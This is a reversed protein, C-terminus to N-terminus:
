QVWFKNYLFSLHLDTNLSKFISLYIAGTDTFYSDTLYVVFDICFDFLLYQLFLFQYLLNHVNNWFYFCDFYYISIIHVPLQSQPECRGRTKLGTVVQIGERSTNNNNKKSNYIYNAFQLICMDVPIRRLLRHFTM